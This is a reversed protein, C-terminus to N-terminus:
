KQKAALRAVNKALVSLKTFPRVDIMGYAIELGELNEDLTGKMLEDALSEDGGIFWSLACCVKRIDKMRMVVDSLSECDEMDSLHYAAGAIRECTPPQIAYATGNVVITRFDLGLMAGAVMKAAKNM